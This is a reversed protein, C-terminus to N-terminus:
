LPPDASQLFSRFRRLTDELERADPKLEWAHPEGDKPTTGAVLAGDTCIEIDAYRDSGEFLVAVEAEVSAVLRVPLMDMSVVAILVAQVSAAFQSSVVKLLPAEGRRRVALELAEMADPDAGVSLCDGRTRRQLEEKPPLIGKARKVMVLKGCRRKTRM